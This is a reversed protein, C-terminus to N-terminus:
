YEYCFAAATMFLKLFKGKYKLVMKHWKKAALQNIFFTSSKNYVNLYHWAEHLPVVFKCKASSSPNTFSVLTLQWLMLKANKFLLGIARVEKLFNFQLM